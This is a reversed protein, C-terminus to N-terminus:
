VWNRWPDDLRYEFPAVMFFDEADADDEGDARNELDNANKRLAEAVQAGNTQLDDTRIVKLLLAQNNAIARVALAAARLVSGGRAMSLYGEIQEDTFIYDDEDVDPILLRVQEVSM